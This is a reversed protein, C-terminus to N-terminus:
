SISAETLLEELKQLSIKSDKREKQCLRILDNLKDQDNKAETQYKNIFTAHNQRNPQSKAAAAGDNRSTTSQAQRRQFDFMLSESGAARPSAITSIHPLSILQDGGGDSSNLVSSSNLVQSAINM